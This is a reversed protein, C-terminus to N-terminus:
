LRKSLGIAGARTVLCIDNFCDAADSRQLATNKPEGYAKLNHSGISFLPTERRFQEKLSRSVNPPSKELRKCDFTHGDYADASGFKATQQTRVLMKSTGDHYLSVSNVM